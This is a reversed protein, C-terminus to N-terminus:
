TYYKTVLSMTLNLSYKYYKSTLLHYSTVALINTYFIEVQNFLFDMLDVVFYQAYPFRSSYLSPAYSHICIDFHIKSIHFSM